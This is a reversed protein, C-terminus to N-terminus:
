LTYHIYIYIRVYTYLTYIYIYIIGYIKHVINLSQLCMGPQGIKSWIRTRSTLQSSSWTPKANRFPSSFEVFLSDTPLCSSGSDFGRLASQHQWAFKIMQDLIMVATYVSTSQCVPKHQLLGDVTRFTTSSRGVCLECIFHEQAGTSFPRTCSRSQLRPNVDYWAVEFLKSVYNRLYSECLWAECFVCVKEKKYEQYTKIYM